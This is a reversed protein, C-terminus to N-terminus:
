FIKKFFFIRSIGEPFSFILDGPIFGFEALPHELLMQGLIM